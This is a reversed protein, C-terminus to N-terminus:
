QLTTKVVPTEWGDYSCNFKKCFEVLKITESNASEVSLSTLSSFRIRESNSEEVTYGMKTLSSGIRERDVSNFELIWHMVERDKSGDDGEKALGSLIKENGALQGELNTPRLAELEDAKAPGHELPIKNFSKAVSEVTDNLKTSPACFWVKRVGFGTQSAAMRGGLQEVQNSIKDELGYYIDAMDPIPMMGNFLQNSLFRYEVRYCNFTPFQDYSLISQEILMIWYEDGSTRRFGLWDEEPLAGASTESAVAGLLGIAMALRKILKM